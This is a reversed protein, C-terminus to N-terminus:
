NAKKILECPGYVIQKDRYKFSTFSIENDVSYADSGIIVKTGSFVTDLVHIMGIAANEIENVLFDKETRYVSLNETLIRRNEIGSKQLLEWTENKMKNKTQRLYSDLQDLKNLENKIREIENELFHLRAQKRPMVGIAVETRTNSVAGIFNAVINGSSNVRGGMIAGRRGEAVFSDGTELTSHICTDITIPGDAIVTGREVYLIKVAGGADIMGRDAGQMGGKVEVNGGAIITAAEVCGDVIVSGTAKILSGSRVSGKIHVSGDFDINGVSLDCDGKVNYVDSVVVTNNTFEVMGSCSAFMQSNEPNLETNVGRPLSINKGPKQTLGEGTVSIGSAGETPPILTVLLQGKEVPIYLDLSRYDVRNGEIEMPCGTRKDTSFNFLLKGDEGDQPL